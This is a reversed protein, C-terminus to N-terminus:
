LNHKYYNYPHSYTVNNITIYVYIKKSQMETKKKKKKPLTDRKFFKGSSLSVLIM